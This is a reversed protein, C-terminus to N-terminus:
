GCRIVVRGRADSLTKITLGFQRSRARAVLAVWGDRTTPWDNPEGRTRVVHKTVLATSTGVCEGIRLAMMSQSVCFSRSLRPLDDGVSAYAASFALSPVCVAAAVRGSLEEVDAEVYGRCRLFWEGLEHAIAHNLQSADLGERVYIVWRTGARQLLANGPMEDRAVPRICSGGLVAVALRPAGPATSPDLGASVYLERALVEGVEDTSHVHLRGSFDPAASGRLRRRHRYRRRKATVLHHRPVSRM